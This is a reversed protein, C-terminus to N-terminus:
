RLSTALLGLQLYKMTPLPTQKHPILYFPFSSFAMRPDRRTTRSAGLQGCGGTGSFHRLSSEEYAFNRTERPTAGADNGCPPVVEATEVHSMTDASPIAPTLRGFPSGQPFQLPRRDLYM